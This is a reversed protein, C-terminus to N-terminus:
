IFHAACMHCCNCIYLYVPADLPAPAPRHEETSSIPSLLGWVTGCLLASTFFGGLSVDFFLAACRRRCFAGIRRLSTHAAHLIQGVKTINHKGGQAGRGHLSVWRQRRSFYTSSSLPVHTSPSSVPPRTASLPTLSLAQRTRHHVVHENSCCCGGVEGEGVCCGCEVRTFCFPSTDAM